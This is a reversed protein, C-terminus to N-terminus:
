LPSSLFGAIGPVLRNKKIPSIQMVDKINSLILARKSRDYYKVKIYPQKYEEPVDRRGGLRVRIVYDTIVVEEVDPLDRKLKELVIPEKSFLNLKFKLLKEYDEFDDYSKYGM